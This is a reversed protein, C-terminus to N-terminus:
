SEVRTLNVLSSCARSSPSMCLKREEEDLKNWRPPLRERLPEDDLLLRRRLRRGVSSGAATAAAAAVPVDGDLSCTLLLMPEPLPLVPLTVSLTPESIVVREADGPPVRRVRDLLRDGGAVDVAGAVEDDNDCDILAAAGGETGPM